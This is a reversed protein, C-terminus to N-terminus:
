GHGFMGKLFRKIAPSARATDRSGAGPERSGAAHRVLAALAEEADRGILADLARNVDLRPVGFHGACTDLSAGARRMRRLEAMGAVDYLYAGM